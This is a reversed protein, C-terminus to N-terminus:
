VRSLCERLESLCERLAGWCASAVSFLKGRLSILVHPVFEGIASGVQSALM